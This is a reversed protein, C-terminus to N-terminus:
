SNIAILNLGAILLLITLIPLSLVFIYSIIKERKYFFDAIILNIFILILSMLPLFYIKGTEGLFDVGRYINYHLISPLNSDPIQFYISTWLVLNLFLASFLGWVIIKDKWFIRSFFTAVFLKIARCHTKLRQLKMAIDFIM